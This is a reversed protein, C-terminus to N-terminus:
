FRGGIGVEGGSGSAGFTPALVFYATGGVAGLAAGAWFADALDADTNWQGCDAGYTATDKSNSCQGLGNNGAGITKALSLAKLGFVLGGVALAGGAGWMVYAPVRSPGADAKTVSAAPASPAVVSDTQAVLTKSTAPPPATVAPPVEVVTAMPPRPAEAPKTSPPPVLPAAPAPGQPLTTVIPATAVPANASQPPTLAQATGPVLHLRVVTGTRGASTTVVTSRQTQFGSASAEFVHESPELLLYVPGSIVRREDVTVQANEPTVELTVKALEKSLRDLSETAEQKKAFETKADTATSVLFADLAEAAEARRGMKLLAQGINFYIKPSPVLEHAHVFHLWASEYDGKAFAEAGQSLLTKAEARRAQDGGDAASAVGAFLLSTV